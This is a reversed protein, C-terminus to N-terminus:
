AKMRERLAFRNGDKSLVLELSDFTDLKEAIAILRVWTERDDEFHEAITSLFDGDNMADGM